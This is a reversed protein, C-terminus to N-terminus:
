GALEIKALENNVWKTFFIQKARVIILYTRTRYGTDPIVIEFGTM